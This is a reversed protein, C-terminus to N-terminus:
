EPRAAVAGPIEYRPRLPQISLSTTRIGLRPKTRAPMVITLEVEAQERGHQDAGAHIGRGEAAKAWHAIREISVPLATAFGIATGRERAMTELRAARRRDGGADAGRRHGRRGQRLARQQRRRDPERPQAGVRRRRFLDARAQATEQLVPALAQETATFRAGMHNAIGVYGQFRSMLWHLRDINQEAHLTTLLTQPGPDNDPYDFPEMPVQLLVEHGESRARASSSDVDAGYPAFAFTVPAPLKDLAETTLERQHRARRRHDRHAPRGAQRRSAGARCLRRRAARRRPRDEPDRWAAFDRDDQDVDARQRRRAAGPDRVEQRKGSTGDIITVTKTAPPRSGAVQETVPTPLPRGRRTGPGDLQASRATGAATTAADAAAPSCRDCWRSPSAASRTTPSLAWAAFVVVFLAWRAPSRM